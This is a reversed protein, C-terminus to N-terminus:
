KQQDLKPTTFIAIARRRLKEDVGEESTYRHEKEKESDIEGFAAEIKRRQCSQALSPNEASFRSPEREAPDEEAQSHLNWYKWKM